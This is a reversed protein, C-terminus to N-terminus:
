CRVDLSIRGSQSLRHRPPNGEACPAAVRCPAGMVLHRLATGPVLRGAAALQDPRIERVDAGFRLPTHDGSYRPQCAVSRYRNYICNQIKISISTM